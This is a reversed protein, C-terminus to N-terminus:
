QKFRVIEEVYGERMWYPFRDSSAVRSNDKILDKVSFNNAEHNMSVFVPTLKSIHDMYMSAVNRDIETISDVNIILDYKSDSSLFDIPTIFKVRNHADEAYEGSLLVNEAGLTRGIFYGSCMITMPIDVITYDTIGLIRAYYATRGLGAGIELVRPNPIDKVLEKIRYAQYIAQAVRYSVVGISSIVGHENPYPNPIFPFVDLKESILKLALDASMSEPTKACEPNWSRMAGMAECCRFLGDVCILAYSHHLNKAAIDDNFMKGLSDIGYFLNTASPDRLISASKALDSMFINHIDIHRTQFIHQWMSNGLNQGQTCGRQYFSVLRSVIEGDIANEGGTKGPVAYLYEQRHFLPYAEAFDHSIITLFSLASFLYLFQKM